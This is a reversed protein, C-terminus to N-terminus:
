ITHIFHLVDMLNGTDSSHNWCYLRVISHQWRAVFPLTTTTVFPFLNSLHSQLSLFWNFSDCGTNGESFPVRLDSLLQCPTEVSPWHKCLLYNNHLNAAARFVRVSSRSARAAPTSEIEGRRMLIFASCYQSSMTKDEKKKNVPHEENFFEVEGWSLGSSDVPLESWTYYAM